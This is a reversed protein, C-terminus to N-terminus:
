DWATSFFIPVLVKIRVNDRNNRCDCRGTRRGLFGHSRQARRLSVPVPSPLRAAARNARCQGVVVTAAGSPFTLPAWNDRTRDLQLGALGEPKRGGSSIGRAIQPSTQYWPTWHSGAWSRWKGACKGGKVDFWTEISRTVFQHFWVYILLGPALGAICLHGYNSWCDAASNAQQWRVCLRWAVWIIALLLAAASVANITVLKTYNREYERTTPPKWCCTCSRWVWFWPSVATHQRDLAPRSSPVAPHCTQPKKPM